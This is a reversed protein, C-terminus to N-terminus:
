GFFGGWKLIAVSIAVSVCSGIFSYKQESQEGDKILNIGIKMSYIVIMIIQPIGIRMDNMGKIPLHYHCGHLQKM